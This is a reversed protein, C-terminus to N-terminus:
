IYVKYSIDIATEDTETLEIDSENEAMVDIVYFGGNFIFMAACATFAM